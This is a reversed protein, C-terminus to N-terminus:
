ILNGLGKYFTKRLTCSIECILKDLFFLIFFCYILKPYNTGLKDMVDCGILCYTSFERM